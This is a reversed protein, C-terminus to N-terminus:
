NFIGEAAAMSNYGPASLVRQLQLRRVGVNGGDFLPYAMADQLLEMLGTKAKYSEVGVVRMADTIVGVMLESSFVKNILSLEQSQGMSRDFNWCAKWTLYRAAEIKAKMDSLITAVNQHQIIPVSGGRTETRAFELAIEFAKRAVGVAMAGVLGATATFATEAIMIGDGVNGIINGKPVRVNEYRVVCVEAGPQGITEINEEITIGPTNGPVLFMSLSEQPPKDMGVRAAVALLDAHKGGWGAAHPTWIKRGNIVWEDGDLVASTAFGKSPDTNHYNATGEPESFSLGSLPAGEGSVFQPLFKEYQEPNGFFLLGMIGLGTSLVSLPLSSEEAILEEAVLAVDVLSNMTGGLPPPVQLKLYGAKVAAEYAPKTAEFRGAADKGAMESRLNRLHKQAFARADLQLKRQEPSLEFDIMETFEKKELATSERVSPFIRIFRTSFSPM